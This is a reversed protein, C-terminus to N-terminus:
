LVVIPIAPIRRDPMAHLPHSYSTFVGSVWLIPFGVLISIQLMCVTFSGLLAVFPILFETRALAKHNSENM